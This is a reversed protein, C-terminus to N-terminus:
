TTEEPDPFLAALARCAMEYEDMSVTGLWADAWEQVAELKPADAAVQAELSAIAFVADGLLALATFYADDRERQDHGLVAADLDDPLAYWRAELEDASLRESM